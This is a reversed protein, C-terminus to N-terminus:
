PGLVGFPAQGLGAVPATARPSRDDIQERMLATRQRRELDLLGKASALAARRARADVPDEILELPDLDNRSEIEALADDAVLRQMGVRVMVMMVEDAVVAAVHDRELVGLELPGDVADGSADGELDGFVLEDQVARAAGAARLM